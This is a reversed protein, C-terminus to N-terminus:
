VAEKPKEEAVKEEKAAETEKQGESKEKGVNEEAIEKVEETIKEVVEETIKEDSAEKAETEAPAAEIVVEASEATKPADVVVIGPTNEELPKETESLVETTKEKETSDKGEESQFLNSLSKRKDEDDVIEKVSDDGEIKKEAEDGIVVVDKEKSEIVVAEEKATEPAPVPAEGGAEEAKSVKPKTACGGM